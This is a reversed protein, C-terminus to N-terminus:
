SQEYLTVLTVRVIGQLCAHDLWRSRYTAEHQTDPQRSKGGQLLTPWQSSAVMTWLIYRKKLPTSSTETRSYLLSTQQEATAEYPMVRKTGQSEGNSPCSGLVAQSDRRM